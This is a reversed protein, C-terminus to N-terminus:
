RVEARIQHMLWMGVDLASFMFVAVLVLGLWIIMVAGIYNAAKEFANAKYKAM